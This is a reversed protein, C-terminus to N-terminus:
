REYLREHLNKLMGATAGWIYRDGFPMAYYHRQRGRWERSHRKHNAPDMLFALPVEFAAAVEGPELTLEFDPKILAVVPTVLFGTGTRYADLFGIPEVLTRALGIEEEAERLATHVPDPDTADVKGGPFAIQGAHTALHATRETLLVTLESRMVIPVLVAAARAPEMVAFDALMEPNLDWDSREWARGTRPDFIRDSPTPHLCATARARFVPETYISEPVAQAITM